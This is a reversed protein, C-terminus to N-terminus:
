GAGKGWTWQLGQKKLAEIFLPLQDVNDREWPRRQNPFKLLTASM